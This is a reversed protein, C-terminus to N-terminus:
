KKNVEHLFYKGSNHSLLQESEVLSFEKLGRKEAGTGFLM